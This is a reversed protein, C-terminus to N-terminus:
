RRGKLHQTASRSPGGEDRGGVVWGVVQGTVWCGAGAHRGWAGEVKAGHLLPSLLKTKLPCTATGASQAARSKTTKRTRKIPM